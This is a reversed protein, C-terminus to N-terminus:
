QYQTGLMSMYYKRSWAEKACLGDEFGFTPYMRGSAEDFWQGDPAGNRLGARIEAEEKLKAVHVAVRRAVEAEIQDAAARLIAAQEKHQVVEAIRSSEGRVTVVAVEGVDQSMPVDRPVNDAGGIFLVPRPGGYGAGGWLPNEPDGAVVGGEETPDPSPSRTRKKNKKSM